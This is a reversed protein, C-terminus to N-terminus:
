TRISSLIPIIIPNVIHIPKSFILLRQTRCFTLAYFTISMYFMDIYKTNTKVEVPFLVCLLLRICQLTRFSWICICISDIFNMFFIKYCLWGANKLCITNYILYFIKLQNLFRCSVFISITYYISVFEYNLLCQHNILYLYYWYLVFRMLGFSHSLIYFHFRNITLM